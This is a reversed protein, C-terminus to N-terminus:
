PKTSAGGEKPAPTNEKPAANAERKKNMIELFEKLIEAIHRPNKPNMNFKKLPKDKQIRLTKMYEM